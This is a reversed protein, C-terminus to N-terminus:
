WLGCNVADTLLDCESDSEFEPDVDGCADVQVGRERAIFMYGRCQSVIIRMVFGMDVKRHFGLCELDSDWVRVTQGKGGSFVRSRCGSVTIARLRVGTEVKRVVAWANREGEWLRISMDDHGTLFSNPTVSTIVETTPHSKLKEQTSLAEGYFIILGGKTSVLVANGCENATVVDTDFQYKAEYFNHKDLVSVNNKEWIYGHNKGPPVVIRGVGSGVSGLRVEDYTSMCIFGVSNTCGPMVAYMMTADHTLGMASYHGGAIKDLCRGAKINWQSIGNSALTYFFQGCPSVCMDMLPSGTSAFYPVDIEAKARSVALEDDAEIALSSIADNGVLPVDNIHMDIATAEIEAGLYQVLYELVKTRMTGLTEDMDIDLTFHDGTETFIAALEM